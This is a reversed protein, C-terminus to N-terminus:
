RRGLEKIPRGSAVQQFHRSDPYEGPQLNECEPMKINAGLMVINSTCVPKWVRMLAVEEM